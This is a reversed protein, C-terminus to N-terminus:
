KRAIVGVVRASAANTLLCAAKFNWTVNPGLQNTYDLTEGLLAGQGDYLEIKLEVQQYNATSVNEVSGTVYFTGNTNGLQSITTASHNIQFDESTDRRPATDFQFRTYQRVKKALMPDFIELAMPLLFYVFGLVVMVILPVVAWKPLPLSLGGGEGKDESSDKAPTAVGAVVPKEIAPFSPAPAAAGSSPPPAGGSGATQRQVPAPSLPAPKNGSIVQTMATEEGAWDSMPDMANGELLEEAPHPTGGGTVRRPSPARAEDASEIKNTRKPPGGQRLPAKLKPQDGAEGETSSDGRIGALRRGIKAPAEPGGTAPKKASKKPRPRPPPGGGGRRPSRPRPPGRRKPKESEELEEEVAASEAEEPEPETIEEEFDEEESFAEGEVSDTSFTSPSLTTLKNCHGCEVEAGIAEPSNDFSLKGNCHECVHKLLMQLGAGCHPCNFDMGVADLPLSVRGNCECCPAKIYVEESM